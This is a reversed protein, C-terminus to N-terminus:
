NHEYFEIMVGYVGSQRIILAAYERAKTENEFVHESESVDAGLFKGMKIVSWM